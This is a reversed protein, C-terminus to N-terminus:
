RFVVQSVDMGIASTPKTWVEGNALEAIVCLYETSTEAVPIYMYAFKVVDQGLSFEAKLRTCIKDVVNAATSENVDDVWVGYISRLAKWEADAEVYPTLDVALDKALVLDLLNYGAGYIVPPLDGTGLQVKIKDM